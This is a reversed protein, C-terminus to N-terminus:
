KRPWSLWYKETYWRIWTTAWSICYGGTALTWKGPCPRACKGRYPVIDPMSCSPVFNRCRLSWHVTSSWSHCFRRLFWSGSGSSFTRKRTSLTWHYFVSVITRKFLARQVTNTSHVSPSARFCISWQIKVIKRRRTLSIWLVSDTSSSNVMSSSMWSTCNYSSTWLVSASASGIVFLTCTTDRFFLFSLEIDFLM